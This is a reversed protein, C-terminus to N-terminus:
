WLLKPPTSACCVSMLCKIVIYLHNYLSILMDGSLSSSLLCMRSLNQNYVMRWSVCGLRTQLLM